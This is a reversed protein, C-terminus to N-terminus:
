FKELPTLGWAAACRRAAENFSLAHGGARSIEEAAAGIDVETRLRLSRNEERLREIEKQMVAPNQTHPNIM